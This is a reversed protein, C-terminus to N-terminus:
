DAYAQGGHSRFVGRQVQVDVLEGPHREESEDQREDGRAHAHEQDHGALEGVEIEEELSGVDVVEVVADEQERRDAAVGDELGTPREASTM